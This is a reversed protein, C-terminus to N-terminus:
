ACQKGGGLAYQTPLWADASTCEVSPPEKPTEKPEKEDNWCLSEQHGDKVRKNPNPSTRPCLVLDPRPKPRPTDIQSVGKGGLYPANYDPVSTDVPSCAALAIIITLRKM